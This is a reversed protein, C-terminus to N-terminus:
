KQEMERDEVLPMKNFDYHELEEIGKLTATRGNALMLSMLKVGPMEVVVVPKNIGWAYGAEWNTGAEGSM